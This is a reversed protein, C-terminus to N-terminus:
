IARRFGLLHPEDNERLDRSPDRVFGLGRYMAQAVVMPPTTRLLMVTRGARRARDIAAEVLAKGIGRGRATPDVGLMRLSAADPPLTEDDDGLTHDIEITASGLVRGEEVAVLVPTRDIRGAVDAIHELYTEWDGDDDPPVFERYALAVVRGAAEYEDPRVDRIEVASLNASGLQYLQKVLPSEHPLIPQM